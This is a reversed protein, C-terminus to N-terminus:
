AFVPRKGTTCILLACLRLSIIISAMIAGMISGINLVSCSSAAVSRVASTTYVSCSNRYM